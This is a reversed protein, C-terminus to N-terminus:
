EKVIERGVHINLAKDIFHQFFGGSIQGGFVFLEHGEGAVCQIPFNNRSNCAFAAANRFYERTRWLPQINKDVKQVLFYFVIVEMFVEPMLAEELRVTTLCLVEIKAQYAVQLYTPM